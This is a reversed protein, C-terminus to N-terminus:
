VRNALIEDISRKIVEWSFGRRGLYGGLKKYIDNRPLDKYREIKKEVLKRAQSLDDVVAELEENSLAATIIEQSIGKQKLEMRLIMRSKPKNRARQEIWWMAFQTDDLFKQIILKDIVELIIKKHDETSEVPLKRKKLTKELNEQVEKISRARYSLFNIAKRYYRDFEDM